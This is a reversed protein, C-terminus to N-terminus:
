VTEWAEVYVGAKAMGVCEDVGLRFAIRARTPLRETANFAIADISRGGLHLALKSHREGIPRLGMGRVHRCIDAGSLGQGVGRRRAHAHFQPEPLGTRDRRVVDAVTGLAVLDPLAALNPAQGNFMKRERLQARLALLVYFMVDVGALHKSPFKCDLQNPNVIFAAESLASEPLHHDTVLM